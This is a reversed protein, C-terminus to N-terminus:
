NPRAIQEPSELSFPPIDVKFKKGDLTKMEYYGKMIGSNTNLYTGSAYEFHEAPKIIPQQGIVGPGYVEQVHGNSDTINWYRNLLQVSEKSHNEMRIYYAWVYYDSYPLSKDQLFVPTVSVSIEETTKRYEFLKYTAELIQM